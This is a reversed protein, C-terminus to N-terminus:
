TGNDKTHKASFYIVYAIVAVTNQDLISVCLLQNIYILVVKRVNCDYSMIEM